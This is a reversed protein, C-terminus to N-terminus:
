KVEERMKLKVLIFMDGKYKYSGQKVEVFLKHSGKKVRVLMDNLKGIKGEYTVVKNATTNYLIKNQVKANNM